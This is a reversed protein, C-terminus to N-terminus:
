TVDKVSYLLLTIFLSFLNYVFVNQLTGLGRGILVRVCFRRLVVVDWAREYRINYISPGKRTVVGCADHYCVFTIIPVHLKTGANLSLGVSLGV